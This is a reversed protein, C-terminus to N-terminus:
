RHEKGDGDQSVRHGQEPVGRNLAFPLYRLAGNVVKRDLRCLYLSLESVRHVRRDVRQNERGKQKKAKEFVASKSRECSRKRKRSDPGFDPVVGRVSREVQTAQMPYMGFVVPTM